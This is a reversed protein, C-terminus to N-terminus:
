NTSLPLTLCIWQRGLSSSTEQLKERTKLWGLLKRESDTSQSMYEILLYLYKMQFGFGTCGKSTFHALVFSLIIYFSFSPLLYLM